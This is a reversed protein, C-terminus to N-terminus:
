KLQLRMVTGLIECDEDGKVISMKSRDDKIRLLWFLRVGVDGWGNVARSHTNM